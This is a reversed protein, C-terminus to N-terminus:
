PAMIQSKQALGSFVTFFNLPNSKKGCRILWSCNARNTTLCIYSNTTVWPIYHLCPQSPKMSWTSHVPVLFILFLNYLNQCSKAAIFTINSWQMTFKTFGFKSPVRLSNQLRKMLGMMFPWHESEEGYSTFSIFFRACMRCSVSAPQTCTLKAELETSFCIYESINKKLNKQDDYPM